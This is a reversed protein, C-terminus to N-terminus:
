PRPAASVNLDYELFDRGPIVPGAFRKAIAATFITMDAGPPSPGLHTLVLVKVHARAAMDGVADPTLHEHVM